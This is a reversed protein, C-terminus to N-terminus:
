LLNVVNVIASYVQSWKPMHSWKPGAKTYVLKDIWSMNIDKFELMFLPTKKMSGLCSIIFDSKMYWVCKCFNTMVAYVNKAKM